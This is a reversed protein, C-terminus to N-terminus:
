RQTDTDGPCLPETYCAPAPLPPSNQRNKRRRRSWRGLFLATLLLITGATVATGAAFGPPVYRLAIRHQGPTLSVSLLAGFAADPATKKGDVLITWGEDAPITLLLRTSGEPVDIVGNLRSSTFSELAYPHAALTKSLTRAASLDEYYFLAEKYELSDGHPTMRFSVLEGPQFRGLPIVGYRYSTFTQGLSVGNVSIDAGKLAAGPFYAYLPDATPASFTYVIEAQEADEERVYVTATDSLGASLGTLSEEAGDVRYFLCEERGTLASAMRNQRLFPDDGGMDARLVDDAAAFGIPLAATNRFVSVSGMTYLRPYVPDAESRSLRYKVGLLCDAFVTSGEWYNAWLGANRFGMRGMFDKTATKETSSFHSLGRYSFLMPDNRGRHFTQEMRYFGKDEHKVREVVPQVDSVYRAYTKVPIYNMQSLVHRGYLLLNGSNVLLLAALVLSGFRRRGARSLRARAGLLVTLVAAVLVDFGIGALTLYGYQQRAVMAAILMFLTLAIALHRRKVGGRLRVFGRCALYIMTFSFLFAQRSPFGIPFNFAHWVLYLAEVQFGCFMVALWIGAAVKERFRIRRNFFYLFLLLTILLGCFMVPLPSTWMDRSEFSGTFLKSFLDGAEFRVGLGLRSLLGLNKDGGMLSFATPVLVFAALGAAALYAGLLRGCSILVARGRLRPSQPHIVALQFLFYLASFICIMYAIYYNTILCAALSLIFLLPRRRSMLRQVGWLVLPLFIIGDLWLINQQYVFVFGMLAYSCSFLLTGSGAREARSLFLACTLGASGVKLLTLLLIGAPLHVTSFPLLVLNFPSLLYYAAFGAMDGGLNKSFTYFFDNGNRAMDKLYSFFSVYQGDMDTVLLSKEGFPAVGILAYVALMVAAPLLFAAAYRGAERARPPIRPTSLSQM